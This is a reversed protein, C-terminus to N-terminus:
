KDSSKAISLARWALLGTLLLLLPAPAPVPSPGPGDLLSDIARLQGDGFRFFEFNRFALVSASNDVNNFALTFADLGGNPMELLSSINGLNLLPDFVLIDDDTGGDFFAAGNLLAEAFEVGTTGFIDPAVGPAAGVLPAM